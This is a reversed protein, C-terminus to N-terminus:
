IFILIDSHFMYCQIDMKCVDASLTVTVFAEEVSPPFPIEVTVGVEELTGAFFLSFM